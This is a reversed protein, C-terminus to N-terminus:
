VYEVEKRLTIISLNTHTQSSTAVVSITLKRVPEGRSELVRRVERNFDDKRSFWNQRLARVFKATREHAGGHAFTLVMQNQIPLHNLCWTIIEPTKPPNMWNIPGHVWPHSKDVTNMSDALQRPDM